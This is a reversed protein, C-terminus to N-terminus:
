KQGEIFGIMDIIKAKSYLRETEKATHYDLTYIKVSDILEKHNDYFKKIKKL